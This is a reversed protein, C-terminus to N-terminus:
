RPEIRMPPIKTVLFDFEMRVGLHDALGFIVKMLEVDIKGGSKWDKLLILAMAVQERGAESLEKSM